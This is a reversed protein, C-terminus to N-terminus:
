QHDASLVEIKAGAIEGGIEEVAMRVAEVSGPGGLDTYLGSQDNMVGIKITNDSIEAQAGTTILGFAAACLAIRSVQM